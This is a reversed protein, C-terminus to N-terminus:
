GLTINLVKMIRYDVYFQALFLVIIVIVLILLITMMKVGEQSFLEEIVKSDLINKFGISDVDKNREHQIHIPNPNNTYYFSTAEGTKKDYIIYNHDVLYARKKGLLGDSITFNNNVYTVNKITLKGVEDIFFVRLKEKSKFYNKVSDIMGM